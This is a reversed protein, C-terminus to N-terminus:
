KHELSHKKYIVKFEVLNISNEKNLDMEEFLEEKSGHEDESSHNDDSYKEGTENL